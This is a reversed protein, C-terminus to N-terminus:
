HCPTATSPHLIIHILLIGVCTALFLSVMLMSNAQERAKRALKEAAVYRRVLEMRTLEQKM